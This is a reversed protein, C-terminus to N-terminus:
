EIDLELKGNGTNAKEDVEKYVLEAVNFIAKKLQDENKGKTMIGLIFPKKNHYVIGFHHLQLEDKNLVNVGFKHAVTIEKPIAQRLGFGYNSETLIKLAQSSHKENLYSAHYLTRFFTSYKKVNLVNDRENSIVPINMGLDLEVKKILSADFSQLQNLISMTAENDSYIIMFEILQMITYTNGNILKTEFNGLMKSGFKKESVGEQFEVSKELFGTSIEEAKFAAIMIPVKMLSSPSFLEDENYVYVDGNTLDRFYVSQVKVLEKTNQLIQNRLRKKLKSLRSPNENGALPQTLKKAVLKADDSSPVKSKESVPLSAQNPAENKSWFSHSLFGLFFALLGILLAPLLKTKM